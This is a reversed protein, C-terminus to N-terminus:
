SEMLAISLSLLALFEKEIEPWPQHLDITSVRIRHKSHLTFTHDFRYGNSPYLLTDEVNEWGPEFAKNTLYAHLQYLNGSHFRLADYRTVLAEHYYKCDLILKRDPWAVTVDTIM